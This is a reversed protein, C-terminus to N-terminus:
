AAGGSRLHKARAGLTFGNGNWEVVLVEWVWLTDLDLVVTDAYSLVDWGIRLPGLKM